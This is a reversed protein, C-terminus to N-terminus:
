TSEFNQDFVGHDELVSFFARYEPFHALSRKVTKLTPALYKLYRTDQRLMYFSAFSGCAKFCRQVTQLEFVYNFHDSSPMPLSPAHRKRGDLYYHLLLEQMEDNMSVYSDRLLSVLDYQIAGMRADQFDIVRVRGLKIMVNRSHYDRHAIFKPEAHLRDCISTYIETLETNIKSSLNLRCLGTLLHERGYNMEWLLKATDFEVNFATCPSRDASALYHIKILEDIAQKYYPICLDQTQNEWFKRELTLDGLDELLVFGKDPRMGVVKPVQVGHKEFHQRVSLFPYQGNDDFPEWLMLVWSDDDAVVRFYRRASADGALPHIEYSGAGLLSGVFGEFEHRLEPTVVNTQATSTQNLM